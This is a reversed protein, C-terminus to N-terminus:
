SRNTEPLFQLPDVPTGDHRIEFHLFVGGQPSKGLLAITQGLRVSDGQAVRATGINAYVSLYDNNEQIMIMQGYSMVGPGVYIVQGSAAAYIPQNLKGPLDIGQKAAAQYHGPPSLPWQWEQGNVMRPAIPKPLPKPQPKPEPAPKPVPAPLPAPQAVVPKVAPKVVVRPQEVPKEFSKVAKAKPPAVDHEPARERVVPVPSPRQEHTPKPAAHAFTKAPQTHHEVVPQDWYSMPSPQAAPTQATVASQVPQNVPQAVFTVQPLTLPAAAPPNASPPPTDVTTITVIPAPLSQTCGGLLMSVTLLIAGGAVNVRLAQKRNALNLWFAVIKSCRLAAYYYSRLCARVRGVM